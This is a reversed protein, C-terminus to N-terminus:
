YGLDAFSLREEEHLGIHHGCFIDATGQHIADEGAGGSFSSIKEAFLHKLETSLLFIQVVFLDVRLPLLYFLVGIGIM